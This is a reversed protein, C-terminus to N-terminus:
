SAAEIKCGDSLKLYGETIIQQGIKLGEKIIVNDGVYNGVKVNQRKAIGNDNIWVYYGQSGTQIINAPINLTQEESSPGYLVKSVMGPLLSYDKNAISAKVTYSHSLTNAAVGKETIHCSFQKYDLAAVVISLEDGLQVSSIENEPVSFKVIVTDINLFTMVPQMPLANSGEELLYSGVIGSFPAYLNCDNLSKKAIQEMARAQEVKSQIEIWKVEPLSGQEYVKQARKYGDEAQELTSRAANYSSQATQSDLKGLLQGKRAKQGENLPLSTILGGNSFSLSVTAQAEITGVYNRHPSGIYSSDLTLTQVKVSTESTNKEQVKGNSCSWLLLVAPLIIHYFKM